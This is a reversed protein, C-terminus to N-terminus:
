DNALVAKIWVGDLHMIQNLLLSKASQYKAVRKYGPPTLLCVVVTSCPAPGPFQITAADQHVLRDMGNIQQLPQHTRDLADDRVRVGQHMAHLGFIHRDGDQAEGVSSQPCNSRRSTGIRSHTGADLQM